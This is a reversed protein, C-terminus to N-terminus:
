RVIDGDFTNAGSRTHHLPPWPMWRAKQPGFGEITPIRVLFHIVSLLQVIVIGRKGIRNWGKQFQM